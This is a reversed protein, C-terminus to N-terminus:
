SFGAPGLASRASLMTCRNDIPPPWDDPEPTPLPSPPEILPEILPQPVGPDHKPTRWPRAPPDEPLAPPRPWHEPLGPEPPHTPVNIARFVDFAHDITM